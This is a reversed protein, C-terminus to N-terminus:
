KILKKKNAYKSIQHWFFNAYIITKKKLKIIGPLNDSYYLDYMSFKKLRNVWSLDFFFKEYDIDIPFDIIKVKKNIKFKKVKKKCCFFHVTNKKCVENAVISCRKIHGLGNNSAIIEIKMM